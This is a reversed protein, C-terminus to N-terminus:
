KIWRGESKVYFDNQEDELLDQACHYCRITIQMKYNDPMIYVQQKCSECNTTMASSNAGKLDNVRHCILVDENM